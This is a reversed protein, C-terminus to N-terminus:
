RGYLQEWWPRDDAKNEQEPTPTVPASSSVVVLSEGPRVLGLVNRAVGEIYADTKLYERVEVLRERDEALQDIENQIQAEDQDLQRNLLLDGAASFLLYGAVVITLLIAIRTRTLWALRHV